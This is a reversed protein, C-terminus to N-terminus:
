RYLYNAVFLLSQSCKKSFSLWHLFEIRAVQCVMKAKIGESRNNLSMTPFSSTAWNKERFNISKFYLELIKM